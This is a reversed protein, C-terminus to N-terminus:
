FYSALARIVSPAGFRGGFLVVIAAVGLLSVPWPKLIWLDFRPARRVTFM